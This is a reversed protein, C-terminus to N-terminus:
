FSPPIRLVQQLPLAPSAPEGPERPGGLTAPDIGLAALESMPRLEYTHMGAIESVQSPMCRCLVTQVRHDATLYVWPGMPQPGDALVRAVVTRPRAAPAGEVAHRRGALPEGWVDRAAAELSESVFILRLQDPDSLAEWVAPMGDSDLTLRVGQATPNGPESRPVPWAYTVQVHPRGNVAVSGVQAYVVPIAPKANPLAEASGQSTGPPTGQPAAVLILPALEMILENLDPASSGPKYYDARPLVLPAREYARQRMAAWHDKAPAAPSHIAPSRGEQIAPLAQVSPAAPTCAATLGAVLLLRRAPRGRRPLVPGLASPPRPAPTRTRRRFM